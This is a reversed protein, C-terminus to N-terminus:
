NLAKSVLQLLLEKNKGASLTNANLHANQKFRMIEDKTLGNLGMALSEPEFDKSVVGLQYEDVYRKMELSPGIAIALRAQVFEFFKNPLAHKYNFNLPPLLFVGIDYKNMVEPLEAMPVPQLLRVRGPREAAMKELKKLYFKSFFGSPVLLLDLTFKHDLFDMMQIMRDIYRAKVAIGTHILKVADNAPEQPELDNFVTANTFVVSDVGYVRKYEEGIGKCVVLMQDAKALHKRCLRDYHPQFVLRWILSNERQRPYYEHADFFVKAGKAIDLAFSLTEIDNSIVLDFSQNALSTKLSDLKYKQAIVQEDAGSIMKLMRGFMPVLGSSKDPVPIFSVGEVSPDSLGICTIQYDQKLFHIQRIVRPDKKLHTFAIILIKKM